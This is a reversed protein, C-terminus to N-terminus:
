NFALNILLEENDKYTKGEKLESILQICYEGDTYKSNDEEFHVETYDSYTFEGGKYGYFIETYALEINKLIDEKSSKLTFDIDFAVEDYSGRWSFPKSLLCNFEHNDPFSQIYKKFEKLYM